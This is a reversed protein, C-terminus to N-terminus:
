MTLSVMALIFPEIFTSDASPLPVEKMTLNGTEAVCIAFSIESVPVCCYTHTSHKAGAPSGVLHCATTGSSYCDGSLIKGAVFTKTEACVFCHSTNTRGM